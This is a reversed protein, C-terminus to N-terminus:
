GESLTFFFTAGEGPRGQAWVRGGHRHVVRAVTALGIGTGAYEETPHLRQFPMFLKDAYRPDFGAGDDRVFFARQAADHGIEIRAAPRKGTFKWANGVLNDILLRVLRPDGTAPLRDPAVLEVIRAPDVLRLEALAARALAALDLAEHRTECRTVRSLALIDDILAGMRQAGARVREIYRQAEPDLGDRRAEALLKSFGDIARLPTRLDHSVSYAFAELERNAVQLARTRREVEDALKRNLRRLNREARARRREALRLTGAMTSLLAVLVAAHLFAAIAKGSEVDWWNLTRGLQELGNFAIPLLLLVPLLQRVLVAGADKSDFWSTIERRPHALLCAFSLAVMALGVGLEGALPTQEYGTVVYDTLCYFGLLGLLGAALVFARRQRGSTGADRALLLFGFVLLGLGMALALKDHDPDHSAYMTPVALRWPASEVPDLPVYFLRLAGLLVVTGGALRTYYHRGRAREGLALAAAGVILGTGTVWTIGGALFAFATLLASVAALLRVLTDRHLGADVLGVALPATAMSAPGGRFLAADDM